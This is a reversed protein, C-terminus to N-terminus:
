QEFSHFVQPMYSSCIIPRQMDDFIIRPIHLIFDTGSEQVHWGLLLSICSRYGSINKIKNFVRGQSLVDSNELRKEIHVVRKDRKRGRKKRIEMTICAIWWLSVYKRYSYNHTVVGRIGESHPVIAKPQSDRDSYM